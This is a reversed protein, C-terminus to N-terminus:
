REGLTKSGGDALESASDNSRAMPKKGSASVSSALTLDSSSQSSLFTQM